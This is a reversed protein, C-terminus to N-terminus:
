GFALLPTLIAFTLNFSNDETFNTHPILLLYRSGGGWKELDLLPHNM